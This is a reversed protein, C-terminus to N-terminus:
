IPALNKLFLWGKDDGYSMRWKSMKTVMVMIMVMM